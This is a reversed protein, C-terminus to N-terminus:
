LLGRGSALPVSAMRSDSERVYCSHFVKADKWRGHKQVLLPDAGANVAETAGGQRFSHTGVPKHIGAQQLLQRMSSLFEHYPLSPIPQHLPAATQALQGASDVARLLPGVDELESATHQGPISQVAPSTQYNGAQLLDQVLRVPCAPGRTAPVQVWTGRGEPDTKSRWLLFRVAEASVKLYQAHVLINAADSFRLLGGYCLVMITVHMRVALSCAPTIHHLVLKLVDQALIPERIRKVGTLANKAAKCIMRCFPDTTSPSAQQMSAFHATLAASAREVLGYGVKKQLAIKFQHDLFLAASKPCSIDPPLGLDTCFAIYQQIMPQYASWTAPQKAAGVTAYMAAARQAIANGSGNSSQMGAAFRAALMHGASVCARDNTLM